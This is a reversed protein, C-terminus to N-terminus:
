HFPSVPEQPLGMWGAKAPLIIAKACLVVGRSPIKKGAKYVVDKLGQTAALKEQGTCSQRPSGRPSMRRSSFSHKLFM